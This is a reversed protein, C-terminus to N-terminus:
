TKGLKYENQQKIKEKQSAIEAKLVEVREKNKEQDLLRKDINNELLTKEENLSRISDRTQEMSELVSNVSVKYDNIDMHIADRSAQEAKSKM